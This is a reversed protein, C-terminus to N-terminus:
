AKSLAPCHYLGFGPIPYFSPPIRIASPAFISTNSSRAPLLPALCHIGPAPWVPSMWLPHEIATTSLVTSPVRKILWTVAAGQDDELLRQTGRSGLGYGRRSFLAM